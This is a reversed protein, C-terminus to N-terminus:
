REDKKNLSAKIRSKDEYMRRDAISLLQEMRRSDAPYHALGISVNLQIDHKVSRYPYSFVKRVRAMMKHAISEDNSVMGIFEDGGVRAIFDENRFCQSLRKSSEVIVQDGVEHGYRDNIAKFGNLDMYLLTLGQKSRIRKRLEEYFYKRNPLKSLVDHRSLHLLKDRDEELIKQQQFNRQEFVDIEILFATLITLVLVMAFGFNMIQVYWILSEPPHFIAEHPLLLFAIIAIISVGGYLILGFFGTLTGAILPVLYFWVFLSTDIGGSVYNVGIVTSVILITLFHSSFRVCYYRKLAILNLLSLLIGLSLVVMVTWHHIPPLILMLLVFVITEIGIVFTMRYQRGYQHGNLVEKLQHKM